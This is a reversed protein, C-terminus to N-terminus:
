KKFRIHENMYEVTKFGIYLGAANAPRTTVGALFRSEAAHVAAEEFSNFSYGQPIDPHIGATNLPYYRGFVSSLAAASASFDSVIGDPYDPNANTPFLSNWNSFGLVDRIYTVPRQVNYTYKTKFAAIAADLLAIGMKCQALAVKDLKAAQETAVKKLINFWIVVNTRWYQAQISDAKTLRQSADYVEKEMKYFASSPDTSYAPPPPPLTEKLVGPMLPRVDGYHVFTPAAFAPPTPVWLGPGVPPTYPPYAAFAGDTESWEFIRKAVERGFAVSRQFTVADVETQYRANLAGELSDITAKGAPTIGYMLSKNITALAANASAAWHYALGKETKPMQPMGNLQGSLSRYDPMGPVVAEYLAISVYAYYRDPSAQNVFGPRLFLQPQEQVFQIEMDLWKFAVDPSYDKTQNLHGQGPHNPIFDHLKNCSVFFLLFAFLLGSRLN